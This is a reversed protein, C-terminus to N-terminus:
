FWLIAHSQKNIETYLIRVQFQVSFRIFTGSFILGRRNGVIEFILGRRIGVIKKMLMFNM